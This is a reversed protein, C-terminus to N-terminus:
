KKSNQEYKLYNEADEWEEMTNINIEEDTVLMSVREGYINGNALNETKFLYISGTPTWAPPFDQRRTIRKYVPSGNVLIAGNPGDMFVQAPNYKEPVESVSVLSDEKDSDFREIADKIQKDTRLPSTPQLLLVADIKGKLKPIESKLVEYMSTEDQALNDPRIMVEAGYKVAVKAIEIDDTSVITRLKAKLASEISYAILPKGNLLKINKRPISKSGGRAPIFCIINNM